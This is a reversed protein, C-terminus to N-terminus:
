PSRKGTWNFILIGSFNQPGYKFVLLLEAVPDLNDQQCGASSNFLDAYSMSNEM